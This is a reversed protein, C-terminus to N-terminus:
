ANNREEIIELKKKQALAKRAELNDMFKQDPMVDLIKMQLKMNKFREDYSVFHWGEAGSILLLDQIQTYYELRAEKLDFQNKFGLYLFHNASNKPNKFEAGWHINGGEGMLADPSGGSYDNHKLFVPNEAGFYRMSTNRSEKIYRNFSAEEYAKGHMLAEVFELDPRDYLVTMSEIVKQRIYSMGTQSFGTGDKGKGILKYNESSTLMTWRDLFWQDKSDLKDIM